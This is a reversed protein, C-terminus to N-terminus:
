QERGPRDLVDRMTTIMSLWRQWNAPDLWGGPSGSEEALVLDMARAALERVDHPFAPLPQKPGAATVVPEGGPCQAAVLAAAAIAQAPWLLDGVDGADAARALVGRVLEGRGALSARDLDIAFDAAKDNDFPGTGWTGM